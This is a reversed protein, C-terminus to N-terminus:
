CFDESHGDQTMNASVLNTVIEKDMQEIDYQEGDKDDDRAFHLAEHLEDAAAVDGETAPM